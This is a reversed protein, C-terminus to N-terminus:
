PTWEPNLAYHQGNSTREILVAGRLVMETMWAQGVARSIDIADYLPGTDRRSLGRGPVHGFAALYLLIRFATYTISRAHPALRLFTSRLLDHQEDDVTGRRHGYFVREIQDFRPVATIIPMAWRDGGPRASNGFRAPQSRVVPPDEYRDTRM